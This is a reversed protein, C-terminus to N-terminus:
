GKSMRARIKSLFEPSIGLYSAIYHQPVRQSISPYLTLFDNYKDAATKSITNILRNQTSALHRQIMLRFVREFSPVEKLLREKRELSLTLLECTELTEIFLKSPTQEHFSAVDSVWWDEIPFLLITEFGNPDIYFTRLCGSLVYGEFTCVEGEQLLFTKKPIKKYELLSNFFALEESNFSYCRSVYLNIPTFISTM